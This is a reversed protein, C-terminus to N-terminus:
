RKDGALSRQVASVSCGLKTAIQRMVLGKKRLRRIELDDRLRPRGITKESKLMGQRINENKQERSVRNDKKCFRCVM